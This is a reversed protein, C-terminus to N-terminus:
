SMEISYGCRRDGIHNYPIPAKSKENVAVLYFKRIREM